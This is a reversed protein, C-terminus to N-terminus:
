EIKCFYDRKQDSDVRGPLELKKLLLHYYCTTSWMALGALLSEGNERDPHLKVATDDDHLNVQADCWFDYNHYGVIVSFTTGSTTKIRLMGSTGSGGMELVLKDCKEETWTGGNAYYWCTKEVVTLVENTENVIAVPIIYTM